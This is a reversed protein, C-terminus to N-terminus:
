NTMKSTIISLDFYNRLGSDVELVGRDSMQPGTLSPCSRAEVYCYSNKKFGKIWYIKQNQRGYKATQNSMYVNFKSVLQNIKM